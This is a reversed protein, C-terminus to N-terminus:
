RQTEGRLRKGFGFDRPSLGMEAQLAEVGALLGKRKLFSRVPDPEEGRRKLDMEDLRRRMKVMEPTPEIDRISRM